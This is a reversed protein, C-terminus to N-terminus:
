QQQIEIWTSEINRAEQELYIPAEIARGYKPHTWWLAQIPVEPEFRNSAAYEDYGKGSGNVIFRRMPTYTHWHGMLVYDVPLSLQQYQAMLKKTGRTVPGVLGIQGDGGRVGLRDGHTLVYYWGALKYYSDYDTPIMFQIKKDTHTFHKELMTYLLWDFNTQAAGKHRYKTTRGHNGYATPIFIRDFHNRLKTIAAVLHDFLDFVHEMTYGDNSQALEEHIDGGVMDGGLALVIGPYEPNVTHNFCLDLAKDICLELRKAAITPNYTNIHSIDSVVEGWHWDSLLLTPVGATGPDDKINDIWSPPNPNHDALAFIKERVSQMTINESLVLKLKRNLEKIDEQYKFEMEAFAAEADPPMVKPRIGERRADELRDRFTTRALELDSAAKSKNGHALVLADVVAQLEAKNIIKSM